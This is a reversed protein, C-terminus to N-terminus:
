RIRAVESSGDQREGEEKGTGKLKTSTVKKSVGSLKQEHFKGIIPEGEYDEIEYVNPDGRIVKSVKFM